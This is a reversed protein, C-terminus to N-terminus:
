FAGCVSSGADATSLALKAQTCRAEDAASLTSAVLGNGYASHTWGANTVIQDGTLIALLLRGRDDALCVRYLGASPNAVAEQASRICVDAVLTPAGDVCATLPSCTGTVGADTTQECVGSVCRSHTALCSPTSGFDRCQLQACWAAELSEKFAKGADENGRSVPMGACTVVKVNKDACEFTGSVQTCDRDLACTRLERPMQSAFGYVGKVDGCSSETPNAPWGEVVPGSHESECSAAAILLVCWMIRATYTRM